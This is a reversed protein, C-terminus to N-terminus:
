LASNYLRIRLFAHFFGAFDRNAQPSAVTEVPGKRQWIACLGSTLAAFGPKPSDSVFSSLVFSSLISRGPM